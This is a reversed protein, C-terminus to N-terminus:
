PGWSTISSLLSHILAIVYRPLPVCHTGHSVEHSGKHTPQVSFETNINIEVCTLM